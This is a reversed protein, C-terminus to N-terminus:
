SGHRSYDVARNLFQIFPLTVRFASLSQKLLHPSDLDAADLEKVLSVDKLKLWEASSADAPFDKPVRKLKNSEDLRFGKAARLTKEFDGPMAFIDERISRLVQPEPCHVGAYFFCGGLFAADYPEVHFYYGANGSKKGGPCIYAGMYNKYPKKDKSFRIDSYIRYTCDKVLLGRVSPDFSAIGDILKETFANFEALAKKYEEKHADFWPKENHKSLESLFPLVSNM